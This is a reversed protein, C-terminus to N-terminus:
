STIYKYFRLNDRGAPKMIENEIREYNTLSVINRTKTAQSYCMRHAYFVSLTKDLITKM